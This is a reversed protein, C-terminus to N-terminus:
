GDIWFVPDVARPGDATGIVTVENTFPTGDVYTGSFTLRHTGDGVAEIEVTVADLDPMPSNQMEWSAWSNECVGVDAALVECLRDDDDSEIALKAASTLSSAVIRAQADTVPAAGSCGGLLVVVALMPGCVM